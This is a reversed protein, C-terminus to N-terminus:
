FDHESVALLPDPWSIPHPATKRKDIWLLEECMYVGALEPQIIASRRQTGMNGVIWEDPWIRVSKHMLIHRLAKARRIIMPEKKNDYKKFYETVLLAREPCLCIPESLLAKRIRHFREPPHTSQKLAPQSAM